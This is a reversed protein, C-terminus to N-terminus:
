LDKNSNNNECTRYSLSTRREIYIDFPGNSVASDSVSIAVVSSTIM